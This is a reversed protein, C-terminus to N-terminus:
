EYKITVCSECGVFNNDIDRYSVDYEEGCIDCIPMPIELLRYTEYLNEINLLETM